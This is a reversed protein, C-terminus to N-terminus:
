EILKKLPKLTNNWDLEIAQNIAESSKREWIEEDLHKEILDLFNEENYPICGKLENTYIHWEPSLVPLGYSLYGLPRSSFHNKRFLDKSVTNLGFQYELHVDLSKAYGKYNINYKREPSNKGYADIIYPSIKTLYSMLEKNIWYGYMNGM